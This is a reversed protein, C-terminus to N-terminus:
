KITKSRWARIFANVVDADFRRGSDAVLEQIAGEPAITGRPLSGSSMANFSDAVALIRAGLPIGDGRAGSSGDAGDYRRYRHSIFILGPSLFGIASLAKWVLNFRTKLAIARDLTPIVMQEVMYEPSLALGLDKLLAAYHLAQRENRTLRLEDAIALAYRIVRQASDQDFLYRANMSHAIERSITLIAEVIGFQAVEQCLLQDQQTELRSGLDDALFLSRNCLVLLEQVKYSLNELSKRVVPPMPTLKSLLLRRMSELQAHAEEKSTEAASLLANIEERSSQWRRPISISFTTGEGKESEISLRGGLGQVLVKALYLDNRKGSALVGELQGRLLIGLEQHNITHDRNILEITVLDKNRESARIHVSDGATSYEIESRLAYFLAQTLGRADALFQGVNEFGESDVEVRRQVALERTEKIISDMVNRLDMEGVIAGGTLWEGRTLSGLEESLDVLQSINEKITQVTKRQEAVDKVEASGVRDLCDKIGNIPVDLKRALFAVWALVGQLTSLEQRDGHPVGLPLSEPGLDNQSLNFYSNSGLLRRLRDMQEAAAESVELHHGFERGANSVVAVHVSMVPSQETQGLRGEHEIYGRELDERKYLSRIRSDFDAIIRRCLSRAKQPTSIIVFNDGGGHGVLDEPNGFLRVAECLIEALLQIVRDGKSFGYASNFAKLDDLDVYIAAFTRNQEILDAIENNVRSLSSVGTLPNANEAREVQKLSTKVLAVVEKPDFPKTVYGYHGSTGRATQRKSDTGLVVLPIHSTQQSEELRRCVDTGELDLVDNDLLIIDPREASAKILAELGSQASIVQLNAHALNVELIGLMERDHGIVLATRKRPTSPEDATAMM